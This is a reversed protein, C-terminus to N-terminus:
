LGSFVPAFEIAHVFTDETSAATSGTRGVPPIGILVKSRSDEHLGKAPNFVRSVLESLFAKGFEVIGKLEIAAVGNHVTCLDAGLVQVGASGNGFDFFAEGLM